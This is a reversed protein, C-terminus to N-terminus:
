NETPSREIHDVVITDLPMRARELRLGLDDELAKFVTPYPSPDGVTVDRAFTTEFNYAGEIGTQDVVPLDERRIRFELEIMRTLQELTGGRFQLQFGGAVPTGLSAQTPEVPPGLKPGSKAVILRYGDFTRTEHHLKLGFREELMARLMAQFDEPSPNAAYTASIDFRETGIWAPGSIQFYKMSYAQQLLQLVTNARFRVNDDLRHVSGIVDGFGPVGVNSQGAPVPPRISVVDFRPESQAWALGCVLLAGLLKM